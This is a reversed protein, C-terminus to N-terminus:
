EDLVLQGDASRCVSLCVFARHELEIEGDLEKEKKVDTEEQGDISQM